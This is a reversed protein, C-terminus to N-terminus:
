VVLDPTPSGTSSVPVVKLLWLSMVGTHAESSNYRATSRVLDGRRFRPPPHLPPQGFQCPKIGVLFGKEDGAAESSGYVPKVHCVTKGSREDILDLSLAAKHLHGTAQVLEVVEHPDEGQGPIYDITQVTSAVHVCQSPPVGPACKPIDYEINGGGGARHIKGDHYKSGTVDCCYANSVGVTPMVAEEAKDRFGFTMKMRIESYAASKDPHESLFVGDECCRLGGAYTDLSCSPNGERKFEDDCNFPREVPKGDITKNTANIRGSTCPCELLSANLRVNIVHLLPMIFEINRAKQAYPAELHFPYGRFEAGTGGGFTAVGKAVNHMQCGPKLTAQRLNDLEAYSGARVIYHHNYMEYLPVSRELGTGEAIEVIDMSFANMPMDKGQFQERIDAPVPIPRGLNNYVEGPRLRITDSYVTFSGAVALAPLSLLLVQVM